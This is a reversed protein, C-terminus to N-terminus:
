RKGKRERWREGKGERKTGLGWLNNLFELVSNNEKWEKRKRAGRWKTRKKQQNYFFNGFSKM